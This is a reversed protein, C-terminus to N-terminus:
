AGCDRGASQIPGPLYGTAMYGTIGNYGTTGNGNWTGNAKDLITENGSKSKKVEKRLM